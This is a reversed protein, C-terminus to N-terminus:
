EWNLLLPFAPVFFCDVVLKCFWGDMCQSGRVGPSVGYLNSLRDLACCLCCVILRVFFIADNVGDYWWRAGTPFLFHVAVSMVILPYVRRLCRCCDIRSMWSGWLSTSQTHAYWLKRCPDRASGYESVCVCVHQQRVLQNAFVPQWRGLVVPGGSPINPAM